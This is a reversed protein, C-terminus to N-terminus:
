FEGQTERLWGDYQQLVKTRIEDVFQHQGLVTNWHSCVVDAWYLARTVSYLLDLDGPAYYTHLGHGRILSGAYLVIQVPADSSPDGRMIPLLGRNIKWCSGLLDLPGETERYALLVAVAAAGLETSLSDTPGDYDYLPIYDLTAAVEQLYCAILVSAHRIPDHGFVFNGAVALAAMYDPGGRSLLLSHVLEGM